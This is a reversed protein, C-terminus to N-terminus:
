IKNLLYVQASPNIDELYLKQELYIKLLTKRLSIMERIDPSYTLLEKTVEDASPLPEWYEIPMGNTSYTGLYLMPVETDGNPKRMAIHLDPLLYGLQTLYESRQTVDSLLNRIVTAYSAGLLDQDKLKKNIAFLVFNKRLTHNLVIFCNAALKSVDPNNAKQEAVVRRDTCETILAKDMSKLDVYNKPFISNNEEYLQNIIPIGSLISQQAISINLLRILNRLIFNQSNYSRQATGLFQSFEFPAIASSLQGFGALEGMPFLPLVTLATQIVSFVTPPHLINELNGIRLSGFSLKKESWVTELSGENQSADLVKNLSERSTFDNMPNLLKLLNADKGPNSSSDDKQLATITRFFLPSYVNDQLYRMNDFNFNSNEFSRVQFFSRSEAETALELLGKQCTKLAEIHVNGMKDLVSNYSISSLPLSNSEIDILLSRCSQYNVAMLEHIMQRNFVVDSHISQLTRDLDNYISILHRDLEQIARLTQMQLQLLQDMKKNLADLKGNIKNLAMETGADGSSGGLLGGGAGGVLSKMVGLAGGSAFSAALESATSAIKAAQSLQATVEADMGLKNALSFIMETTKLYGQMDENFKVISQRTSKFEDNIVKPSISEKNKTTTNGIEGVPQKLIDDLQQRESFFNEINETINEYNTAGKDIESRINKSKTILLNGFSLIETGMKVTSAALKSKNEFILDFAQMGLKILNQYYIIDGEVASLKKASNKAQDIIFDINKSLETIGNRIQAKAEEINVEVLDKSLKNTLRSIAASKLEKIKRDKPNAKEYESLNKVQLADSDGKELLSNFTKNLAESTKEQIEFLALNLAQNQSAFATEIVLQNFGFNEIPIGESNDRSIMSMNLFSNSSISNHGSQIVTLYQQNEFSKLSIAKKVMQGPHSKDDDVYGEHHLANEFINKLVLLYEKGGSFQFERGQNISENFLDKLIQQKFELPIRALMTDGIKQQLDKSLKNEPLPTFLPIVIGGGHRYSPPTKEALKETDVGSFRVPGCSILSVSIIIAIINKKTV